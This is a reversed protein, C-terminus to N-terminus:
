LAELQRGIEGYYGFVMSLIRYAVYLVVGV